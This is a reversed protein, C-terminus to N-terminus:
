NSIFGDLMFIIEREANRQIKLGAINNVTEIINNLQELKM